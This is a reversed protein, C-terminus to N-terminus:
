ARRSRRRPMNESARAAETIQQIFTIFNDFTGAPLGEVGYLTKAYAVLEDMLILCPGCANFLNKLNESGPAVGKLDADRIYQAYLEPKGASTVLQYAMEGWITNVSYGPFNAPKKRRSPDLATGVLVAVNAHPLEELGARELLPKLSPVAELSIKSHAIHYLALMSHTKGGGFATKLQIVPEGGKGSLRQLSEVLLGAMGETIYTRAFFEVPDRYEYAGEGRSVQALDAAFEAAKYRGEAVDPHPEMIDRWSPLNNGVNKTLVAATSGKKAAKVESPTNNEKKATSGQETGYRVKRYLSRIEETADGDIPECLLAMTDLARETYGQEVDSSGAHAIDNRVGMLESAWNRYSKSMKQSFVDRWRRDILRLCNAVDLSDLLEGYEGSEPLDRQDSLADLVEQWWADGYVRSMEMGIYGSLQPLLIRFGKQILEVNEQM